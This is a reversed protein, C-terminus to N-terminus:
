AVLWIPMYELTIIANGADGGGDTLVTVTDALDVVTNQTATSPDPNDTAHSFEARDVIGIAGTGGITMTDQLATSGNKVTIIADDDGQAVVQVSEVALLKVRTQFVYAELLNDATSTVHQGITLKEVRNRISNVEDWSAVVFVEITTAAGAYDKAVYGIADYPHEVKQLLNNALYNGGSDKEVGVLDGMKPTFSTCPYEALVGSLMVFEEDQHERGTVRFNAIGAFRSTFKRRSISESSWAVPLNAASGNERLTTGDWWTLSGLDLAVTKTINLTREQVNEKITRGM